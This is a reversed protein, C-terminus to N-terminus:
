RDSRSIPERDKKFDVTPVGTTQGLFHKTQELWRECKCDPARERLFRAVDQYTCRGEAANRMELVVSHFLDALRFVVKNKLEHGQSRMELLAQFLLRHVLDIASTEQPNM